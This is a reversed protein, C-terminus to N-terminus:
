PRSCAPRARRGAAAPRDGLLQLPEGVAADDGPQEIARAAEIDHHAEIVALAGRLAQAIQQQLRGVAPHGNPVDGLDPFAVAGVLDQALVALPADHHEGVGVARGVHRASMASMRRSSAAMCSGCPKKVASSPVNWACSSALRVMASSESSESAVM